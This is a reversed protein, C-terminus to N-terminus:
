MVVSGLYRSTAAMHKRENYFTAWLAVAQGEFAVPLILECTTDARQHTDLFYEFYNFHPCYAVVILQDEPYALGESSNDLWQLTLTEPATRQLISQEIACLDGKAILVKPYHIAWGDEAQQLADTMHYSMANNYPPNTGTKSGFTLNLLARMPGLFEQVTKLRQQQRLQAASYHKATPSPASRMVNQGRWTTGVVPGLKGSFGGFPGKNM